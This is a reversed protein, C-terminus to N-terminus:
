SRPGTLLEGREWRYHVNEVHFANALVPETGSFDPSDLFSAKRVEVTIPEPNWRKRTAKM